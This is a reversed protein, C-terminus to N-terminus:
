IFLSGLFDNSYRYLAKKYIVTKASNNRKSADFLRSKHIMTTATALIIEVSLEVFTVDHSCFELHLQSPVITAENTLVV